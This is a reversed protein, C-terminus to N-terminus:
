RGLMGLIGGVIGLVFGAIFGGGLILSIVAAPFVVVSGITGYGMIMLVAGLCVIVGLVIGIAVLMWPPFPGFYTIWPFIGAMWTYFSNSLLAAANIIIMIGSILSVLFGWTARAPPYVPTPPPAATPIAGPPAPMAEPVGYGPAMYAPPPVAAYCQPCLILDGYAKADDRCIPRGCRNCVYVAPLNPHYYCMGPPPVRVPAATPAVPTVVRVSPVPKVTPQPIVTPQPAAAEILSTGCQSCFLADDRNNAGCRPCKKVM